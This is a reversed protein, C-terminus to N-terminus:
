EAPIVTFRIPESQFSSGSPRTWYFNKDAVYVAGEVAYGGGETQRRFDSFSRGGRLGLRYRVSGHPLITRVKVPPPHLAQMAPVDDLSDIADWELVYGNAEEVSGFAMAKWKFRLPYRTPNMVECFLIVDEDEVFADKVPWARMRFVAEPEADAVTQLRAQERKQLYPIATALLALVVILVVGAEVLTFGTAYRLRRNFM